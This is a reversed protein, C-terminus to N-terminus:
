HTVEMIECPSMLFTISGLNFPPNSVLEVQFATSIAIPQTQKFELLLGVIFWTTVSNFFQKAMSILRFVSFREASELSEM